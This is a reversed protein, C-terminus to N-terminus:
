VTEETKLKQKGSLNKSVMKACVEKIYLEETKQAMLQDNRTMETVKEVNPDTKWTTQHSYREDSM